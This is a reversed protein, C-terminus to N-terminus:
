ELPIGDAPAPPTPPRVPRELDIREHEQPEKPMPRQGTLPIIVEKEEGGRRIVEFSHAMDGTMESWSVGGASMFLLLLAAIQLCAEALYAFVRFGSAGIAFALADLLIVLCIAAFAGHFQPRNKVRNPYLVCFLTFAVLATTVGHMAWLM